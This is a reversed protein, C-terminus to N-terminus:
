RQWHRRRFGHWYRWRWGTRCLRQAPGGAPRGFNSDAPSPVKLDPPGLLTPVAPLKPNPIPAILPPTFQTMAFKPIKGRSPPEVQHQGGGGGGGARDKGAPLKSLYPSIDVVGISASVTQQQVMHHFIPFLVLIVISAHLGISIAQSAGFKDRRAWLSRVPVPKSTLKLPPLKPPSILDRVNNWFVRYGPQWDVEMASHSGGRIRPANFFQKFSEAFSTDLGETHFVQGKSNRPFKVARETLFETFNSWFTPPKLHAPPGLKPPAGAPLQVRPAQPDRATPNISFQQM